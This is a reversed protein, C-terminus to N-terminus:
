HITKPVDTIVNKGEKALNKQEEKQEYEKVVLEVNDAYEMLMASAMMLPQLDPVLSIRLCADLLVVMAAAKQKSYQDSEEDTVIENLAEASKRLHTLGEQINEKLKEEQSKKKNKGFM